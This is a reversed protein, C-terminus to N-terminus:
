TVRPCRTVRTPADRTSARPTMLATETQPVSPSMRQCTRSWSPHAPCWHTVWGAPPVRASPWTTRSQARPQHLVRIRMSAPTPASTTSVPPTRPATRTSAVSWESATSMPTARWAPPADAPQSTTPPTASLTPPAPITLSAPMLVTETLASRPSPASQTLPAALQVFLSIPMMHQM